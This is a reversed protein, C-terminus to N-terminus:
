LKETYHCKPYNSCGIFIGYKGQRVVLKGGCWPCIGNQIEAKKQM